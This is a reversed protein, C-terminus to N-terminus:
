KWCNTAGTSAKKSGDGNLTLTACATDRVQTGIPKATVTYGPPTGGSASAATAVTAIQYNPDVTNPVTYGLTSLNGAFQRADVLYREQASAIEQMVSEAASRNSRLTYQFYSPVAIAALIAIVAVTIMLEILTFGRARSVGQAQRLYSRRPAALRRGTHIAVPM